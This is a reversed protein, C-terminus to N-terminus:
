RGLGVNRLDIQFTTYRYIRNGTLAANTSPLTVASRDGINNNDRTTTARLAPTAATAIGEVDRETRAVLSITVQIPPKYSAVALPQTLNDQGM